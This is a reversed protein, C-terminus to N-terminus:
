QPILACARMVAETGNETKIPLFLGYAGLPPLNQCHSLNEAISKGAGLILYHVPFSLDLCDPSLSDIGLGKIRRELLYEAAEPSFGPFHMQGEADANRYRQPDQWYRDWGTCGIVWSDAPIKGYRKEFDILDQTSLYYDAHAKHSVDIVCLPAMFDELPLEAISKAGPIFHSPADLHTGTGANMEIAQVRCAEPYDVIVRDQFGCSGSWTPAKPSLTHTLDVTKFHLTNKSDSLILM